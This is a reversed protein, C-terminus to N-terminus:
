RCLCPPGDALGGDDGGRASDPSSPTKSDRSYGCRALEAPGQGEFYTSTLDYFVLDPQLSFLDRLRFYLEKEIRGKEPLLDDLTQYWLKLQEFSVKVRRWAKWQAQWRSGAANCVYFDELWAALAHESGPRTLRYAVLPFVRESLPQGHRLPPRPGDLIPGLALEDFLHRAALVPGWTWAQPTSLQGVGVWRPAPEEAQLVRVLSDLHPALLDKRGLHLVVRQRVRNGERYNEVLRLYTHSGAKAQRLFMPCEMLAGCLYPSYM